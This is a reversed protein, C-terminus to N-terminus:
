EDEIFILLKGEPYVDFKVRVDNFFSYSYGSDKSLIVRVMNDNVSVASFYNKSFWEEDAEAGEKMDILIEMGPRASDLVLAIQKAYSEELTSIGGGQRFIFLVLVTLFVLNLIIFIINGALIEGRKSFVGRIKKM